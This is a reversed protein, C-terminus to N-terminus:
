RVQCDWVKVQRQALLSEEEIERGKWAQRKRAEECVTWMGQKSGFITDLHYRIRHNKPSKNPVHTMFECPFDTNEDCLFYKYIGDTM